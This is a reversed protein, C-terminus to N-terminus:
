VPYRASSAGARSVGNIGFLSCDRDALREIGQPPGGHGALRTGTLRLVGRSRFRAHKSPRDKGLGLRRRIWFFEFDFMRGIVGGVLLDVGQVPFVLQRRQWKGRRAIQRLRPQGERGHQTFVFRRQLLAQGRVTLDHEVGDAIGSAHATRVVLVEDRVLHHVIEGVGILPCGLKKKWRPSTM